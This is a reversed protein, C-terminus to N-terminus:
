LLANCRLAPSRRFRFEFDNVAAFVQLHDLPGRRGYTQSVPSNLYLILNDMSRRQRIRDIRKRVPADRNPKHEM